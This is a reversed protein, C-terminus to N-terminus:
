LKSLIRDVNFDWSHFNEADKRAQKGLAVRLQPNKALKVMADAFSATDGEDVLIGTSMHSIAFNAFGAKSAIVPKGIAMYEIHKISGGHPLVGKYNFHSVLVDCADLYAPVDDFLVQGTFIVSRNLGKERVHEELYPRLESDGMLVLRLNPVENCAKEFSEILQEISNYWVFSAIMGFVIEDSGIGLKKRIEDKKGSACFRELNVGNPNVLIRGEYTRGYNEIIWDRIMPSVVSIVKANAYQVHERWRQKVKNERRLQNSHTFKGMGAPTNVEIVTPVGFFRSVIIPVFANLNHRIYVFACKRKHIRKWTTLFLGILFLIYNFMSGTLCFVRFLPNRSDNKQGQSVMSEPSNKYILNTKKTRLINRINMFCPPYYKLKHSEFNPVSLDSIIEIEFGRKILSEIVGIIHSIHGGTFNNVGEFYFPYTLVFIVKRKMTGSYYM